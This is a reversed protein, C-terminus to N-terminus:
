RDCYTKLNGSSEVNGDKLWGEIRFCVRKLNRLVIILGSSNRINATFM